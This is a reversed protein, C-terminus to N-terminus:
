RAANASPLYEGVDQQNCFAESINLESLMSPRCIVPKGVADFRHDPPIKTPQLTFYLLSPSNIYRKIILEKDRFRESIARTYCPSRVTKGAVWVRVM